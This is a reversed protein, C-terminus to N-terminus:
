QERSRRAAGAVARDSAPEHLDEPVHTTAFGSGCVAVSCASVAAHGNSRRRRTRLQSREVDHLVYLLRSHRLLFRQLACPARSALALPRRRLGALEDAFLDVMDARALMAGARSLLRDRDSQALGPASAHLEALGRLARLGLRASARRVGRLRPSP